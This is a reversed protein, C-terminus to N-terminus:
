RMWEQLHSVFHSPKFQQLALGGNCYSVQATGQIAAIKTFASSRPAFFSGATHIIHASGTMTDTSHRGLKSGDGRNRIVANQGQRISDDTGMFKLKM